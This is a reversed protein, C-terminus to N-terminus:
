TGWHSRSNVPKAARSSYASGFVSEVHEEAIALLHAPALFVLAPHDVGVSGKEAPVPAPPVRAGPV